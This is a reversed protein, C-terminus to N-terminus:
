FSSNQKLIRARYIKLNKSSKDPDLKWSEFEFNGGCRPSAKDILIHYNTM